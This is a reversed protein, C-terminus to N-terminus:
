APASGADPLAEKLGDLLLGIGIALQVPRNMINIAGDHSSVLVGCTRGFSGLRFGQASALAAEAGLNMQARRAVFVQHRKHQCGALTVFGNPKFRQHGTTGHLAAASASGLLTRTTHYAVLGIATAMDPPIQPATADADGDGVLFILM